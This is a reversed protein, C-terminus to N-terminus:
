ISGFGNVKRKETHELSKLAVSILQTKEGQREGSSQEQCNEVIYEWARVMKKLMHGIAYSLAMEMKM